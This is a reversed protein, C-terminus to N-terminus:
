SLSTGRLAGQLRQATPSGYFIAFVVVKLREDDVLYFVSHKRVNMRGVGASALPDVDVIRFRKPMSSLSQIKASLNDFIRVAAQPMDCDDRIFAVLDRPQQLARRTIEVAYSSM